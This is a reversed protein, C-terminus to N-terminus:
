ENTRKYINNRKGFNSIDNIKCSYSIYIKNNNGELSIKHIKRANITIINRYGTIVLKKVLHNIEINNRNGKVLVLNLYNLTEYHENNRSIFLKGHSNFYHNSM